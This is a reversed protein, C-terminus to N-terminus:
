KSNRHIVRGGTLAIMKVAELSFDDAEVILPKNLSGKALVKVYNADKAILGKATLKAVTVHEGSKFNKSLLDINVVDKKRDATKRKIEKEEVILKAQEDSMVEQVEEAAVEEMIEFDREVLVEDYVPADGDEVSEQTQPEAPQEVEDAPEAAPEEVIEACEASETVETLIEEAPEAAAVEDLSETEDLSKGKIRIEGREILEDRTAREVETNVETNSKELGFKEALRSILYLAYKVKRPSTLKLLMPTDAFRKVASVDKGRYKTDEYEAPDLAFAICLKKGKFLMYALKTRGRHAREQRRSLSTKVKKYSLLENEIEVYRQRIEEPSLILKALFSYNVRIEFKKDAPVADTIGLASRAADSMEGVNVENVTQIEEEEWDDDSDDESEEEESDAQVPVAHESTQAPEEPPQEFLLSSLESAKKAADEYMAALRSANQAAREAEAVRKMAEEAERKARDEALQAAVMQAVKAEINEDKEFEGPEDKPPAAMVVKVVPASKKKIALIFIVSLVTVLVLLVGMIVTLVTLLLGTNSLALLQLPKINLM